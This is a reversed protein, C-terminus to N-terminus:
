PYDESSVLGFPKDDSGDTESFMTNILRNRKLGSLVGFFCAECLDVHYREGDHKSGYGWHAQLTGYEFGGHLGATSEGCVDCRVDTVGKVIQDELIKMSVGRLLDISSSQSLFIVPGGRA